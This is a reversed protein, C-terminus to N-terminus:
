KNKDNINHPLEICLLHLDRNEFKECLWDKLLSSGASSREDEPSDSSPNKDTNLVFTVRNKSKKLLLELMEKTPLKELATKISDEDRKEGLKQASDGQLFINLSINQYPQHWVLTNKHTTLRTIETPETSFRNPQRQISM